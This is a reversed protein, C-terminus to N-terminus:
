RRYVGTPPGLTRPRAKQGRSRAEHALGAGRAECNPDRWRRAGARGSAAAAVAGGRARAPGTEPGAAGSGHVELRAPALTRLLLLAQRRRPAAATTAASRPAAPLEAARPRSGPTAAGRLLQGAPGGLLERERVRGSDPRLDLAELRYVGVDVGDVIQDLADLIQRQLVLNSLVDDGDLTLPAPPQPLQPATAKAASAPYEVARARGRM